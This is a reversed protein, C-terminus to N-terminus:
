AADERQRFTALTEAHWTKSGHCVACRPPDLPNDVVLPHGCEHDNGAAIM